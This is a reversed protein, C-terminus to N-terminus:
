TRASTKKGSARDALARVMESNQHNVRALENNLDSARKENEAARAEATTARETLSMNQVHLGKAENRAEAESAELSAIRIRAADLEATLQDTLEAAEAKEAELQLKVADLTEREADLRGNAVQLGLTWIETGFELLRDTVTQPAPTSIPKDKAAKNARWETMAESITTFSGCGLGKRVAALTPNRGQKDLEDAIQFIRERTTISM